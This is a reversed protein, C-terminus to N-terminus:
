LFFHGSIFIMTLRISSWCCCFFWFYIDSITTPMAHHMTICSVLTRNLFLPCHISVDVFPSRFSIIFRFLFVIRDTGTVSHKMWFFSSFGACPLINEHPRVHLHWFISVSGFSENFVTWRVSRFLFSFLSDFASVLQFLTFLYCSIASQCHSQRKTM